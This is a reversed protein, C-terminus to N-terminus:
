DEDIFESIAQALERPKHYGIDHITEPIWQVRGSKLYGMASDVMAVRRLAFESGVRDPTPGAPIILSSCEVKPLISAPPYDWMTRIVQAHNEPRLIDQILGDEDEYVMTQVIRELGDSWCDALQTRLRDLFEERNGSVDRPRVRHSFSEWTAEAGLRADLFGGEIMVLKRVREPFHAALASAVHGGWSHGLVTAQSINEWDMLGTVDSALTQWDYGSSAQTTQGHGRQDPAIVRYSSRLLRAVIDYWNGTSALGHLAVIPPGDGGWDLYRMRLPGVDAWKETPLRNNSRKDELRCVGLAGAFM